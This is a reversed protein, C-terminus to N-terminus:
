KGAVCSNFINTQSNYKIIESKTQEALLNYQAVLQNYDEVMQSYASSKSNTGDIQEKREDIQLFLEDLHMKDLDIQSKLSADPQPCATLPLGFEQVGIWLSQSNYTGKIIAVGTEAFRNNLINERHGPNAMWNDVIEKESSFNGLILNEGAVIYNYGHNLVLIGPDVGLPSEHEFYQNVFMDNAKASAANNLLINEKLASLGNNQRQLNTEEIIKSKLLAVHKEEGGVRLPTPALIQKGVESAVSGIDTGQFNKVQENIQQNASNFFDIVDDKFYVGATFAVIILFSIIIKSAKM